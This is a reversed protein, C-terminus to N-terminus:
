VFFDVYECVYLGGVVIFLFIAFCPDHLPAQSEAYTLGIGFLVGKEAFGPFQSRCGECCFAFGPPWLFMYSNHLCGICPFGMKLEQAM